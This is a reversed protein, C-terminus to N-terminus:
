EYLEVRIMHSSLQGLEISTDSTTSVSTDPFSLAPARWHSSFTLLTWPVYKYHVPVSINSFPGPRKNGRTSCPNGAAGNRWVGSCLARRSPQSAPHLSHPLAGPPHRTNRGATSWMRGGRVTGPLFRPAHLFFGSSLCGACRTGFLLRSCRSNEREYLHHLTAPMGHQREERRDNEAREDALHARTIIHRRARRARHQIRM